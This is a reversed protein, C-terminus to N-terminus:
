QNNKPQLFNITRDVEMEVTKAVYFEGAMQLIKEQDFDVRIKAALEDVTEGFLNNGNQLPGGHYLTNLKTALILPPLNTALLHMKGPDERGRYMPRFNKWITQNTAIFAGSWENEFEKREDLTIKAKAEGFYEKAK